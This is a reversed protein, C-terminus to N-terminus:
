QAGATAIEPPVRLPVEVPGLRAALWAAEKAGERAHDIHRTTEPPLGEASRGTWAARGRSSLNYYVSVGERVRAQRQLRTLRLGEVRQRSWEAAERMHRAAAHVAEVVDDPDELGLAAATAPEFQAIGLNPTGDRSAGRRPIWHSEAQILGYVDQFGLGVEDLKAERAAAQALMLRSVHDPTLLVTSGLRVPEWRIRRRLQTYYDDEPLPPPSAAQAPLQPTFTAPAGAHRLSRPGIWGLWSAGALLECAAVAAVGM